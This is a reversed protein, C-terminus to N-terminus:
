LSHHIRRLSLLCVFHDNPLFYVPSIVGLLIIVGGVLDPCYTFRGNIESESNIIPPDPFCFVTQGYRTIQGSRPDTTLIVDSPRGGDFIEFYVVLGTLPVEHHGLKKPVHLCFEETFGIEKAKLTELNYTRLHGTTTCISEAEAVDGYIPTTLDLSRLSSFDIGSAQKWYRTSHHTDTSIGCIFLRAHGPFIAPVKTFKGRATIIQKLLNSRFFGIGVWDSVIVDVQSIEGPFSACTEPSGRVPVINPYGSDVATAVTLASFPSSDMALVTQAGLGACILSLLGVKCGVDLVVKGHIEAKHALLLKIYGQITESDRLPQLFLPLPTWEENCLPGNALEEELVAHDFINRLLLETEARKQQTSAPSPAAQHSSSTGPEDGDRGAPKLSGVEAHRGSETLAIAELRNAPLTPQLSLLSSSQATGSTGQRVAGRGCGPVNGPPRSPMSTVERSARARKLRQLGSASEEAMKM